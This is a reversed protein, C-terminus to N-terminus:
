LAVLLWSRRAYVSKNTCELMGGVPGMHKDYRTEEESSVQSLEATTLDITSHFNLSLLAMKPIQLLVQPLLLSRFLCQEPLQRTIAASKIFFDFYNKADAIGFSEFLQKVWILSAYPLM